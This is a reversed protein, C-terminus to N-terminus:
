FWFNISKVDRLYNTHITRWEFRYDQRFVSIGAVNGLLFQSSYVFLATLGLVFQASHQWSLFQPFESRRVCFTNGTNLRVWHCCPNSCNPLWFHFSIHRSLWAGMACRSLLFNSQMAGTFFTKHNYFPFFFCVLFFSFWFCWYYVFSRLLLPIHSIGWPDM